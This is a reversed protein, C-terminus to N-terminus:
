SGNMEKKEKELDLCVMLYRQVVVRYIGVGFGGTCDVGKMKMKQASPSFLILRRDEASLQLFVFFTFFLVKKEAM